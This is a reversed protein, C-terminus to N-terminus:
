SRPQVLTIVISSKLYLKILSVSIKLFVISRSYNGTRKEEKILITVYSPMNRLMLVHTLNILLHEKIYEAKNKYKISVSNHLKSINM